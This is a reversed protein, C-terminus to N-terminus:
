EGRIREIQSIISIVLSSFLGYGMISLELLNLNGKVVSNISLYLFLALTIIQSLINLNDSVNM